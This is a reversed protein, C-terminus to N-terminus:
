TEGAKTATEAERALTERMIPVAADMQQGIYAALTNPLMDTIWVVRSTGDPEGFVQVSASHATFSGGPIAYVLRRAKDDLDVLLERAVSGNAFTVIRVEGDLRLDTVFGPAVRQHVAGFDRMAEWVHEPGADISIERRISAM